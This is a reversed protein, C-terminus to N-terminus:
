QADGADAPRASGEDAVRGRRLRRLRRAAMRMQVAKRELANAIGDYIGPACRREAEEALRKLSESMTESM